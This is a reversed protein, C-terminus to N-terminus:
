NKKTLLSLYETSNAFNKALIKGDVIEVQKFNKQRKIESAIKCLEANKNCIEEQIPASFLSASFTFYFVSTFFIKLLKM